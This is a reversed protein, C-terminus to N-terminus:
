QSEENRGRITGLAAPRRDIREGAQKNYNIIIM